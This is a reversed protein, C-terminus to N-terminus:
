QGSSSIWLLKFNFCIKKGIHFFILQAYIGTNRAGLPLEFVDLWLPGSNMKPNMAFFAVLPKSVLLELCLVDANFGGDGAPNSISRRM